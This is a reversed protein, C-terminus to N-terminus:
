RRKANLARSHRARRNRKKRKVRKTRVLTSGPDRKVTTAALAMSPEFDEAKRIPLQAMRLFAELVM